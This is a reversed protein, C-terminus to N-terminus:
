FSLFAFMDDQILFVGSDGFIDFFFYIDVISFMIHENSMGFKSQTAIRREPLGEKSSIKKKAPCANIIDLFFSYYIYIIRVPFRYCIWNFNNSKKLYDISM